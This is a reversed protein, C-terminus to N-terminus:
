KPLMEDIIQLILILIASLKRHYFYRFRASAGAPSPRSGLHSAIHWELSQSRLITIDWNPLLLYM